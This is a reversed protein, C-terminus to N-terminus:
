ARGTAAQRGCSAHWVMSTTADDAPHAPQAAACPEDARQDHWRTPGRPGPRDHLDIWHGESNRQAPMARARSNAHLCSPAPAPLKDEGLPPTGESCWWEHALSTPMRQVANALPPSRGPMRPTIASQALADQLRALLGTRCGEGAGTSADVIALTTERMDRWAESEEGSRLLVLSLVDTWAQELLMAHFRPLQRGAILHTIESSARLQALELKEHGRAAEVHRREAMENKRAAALLGGQLAHNAAGFTEDGADPDEQVTGVARQLLGLWQPDLDDEALWRAGALSVADLLARAPHAPDVFFRHDRLALQLM